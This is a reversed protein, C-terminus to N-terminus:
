MAKRDSDRRHVIEVVGKTANASNLAIGKGSWGATGNGNGVQPRNVSKDFGGM